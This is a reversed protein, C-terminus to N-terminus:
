QAPQSVTFNTFIVESTSNADDNVVGVFGQTFTSDDATGVQQGNVYFTFHSGIALVRLTNSVGIGQQIYASAQCSQITAAHSNVWKFFCWGGTPTIEFTYLDNPSTRRLAIGYGENAGIKVENVTVSVDVDSPAVSNPAYCVYSGLVHYGDAKGFCDAGQPWDQPINTLPSQYIITESPTSTPQQTNATQTAQASAGDGVLLPGLLIIGGLTTCIVSVAVVGIIINRWMTPLRRPPSNVPQRPSTPAPTRLQLPVSSGSPVGTQSISASPYRRFSPKPVQVGAKLVIDQPDGYNPAVRYLDELAARAGEVNGVALSRQASQYYLDGRQNQAIADLHSQADTDTPFHSRLTEWSEAARTWDARRWAEDARARLATRLGSQAMKDTPALRLLAQWTGVAEDLEGDQLSENAREIRATRVGAQAEDDNSRVELLAQWGGLARRWQKEVMAGRAIARLREIRQAEIQRTVEEYRQVFRGDLFSSDQAIIQQIFYQESALDGKGRADFAATMLTTLEQPPPPPPPSVKRIDAIDADEAITLPVAKPAQPLDPYKPPAPARMLSRILSTLGVQYPENVGQDSRFDIWQYLDLDIPASTVTRYHVPIVLKGLKQARHYEIHVFRSNISDPSVIVVMAQCADVADQILRLWEQGGQDNLKATDIWTNFGSAELDARLRYAFDSDVRSYSILVLRQDSAM